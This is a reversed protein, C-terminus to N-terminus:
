SFAVAFHPNLEYVIAYVSIHSTKFIALDRDYDKGGAMCEQTGNEEVYVFWM